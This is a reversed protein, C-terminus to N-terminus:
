EAKKGDKPLPPTNEGIKGLHEALSRAVGEQWRSLEGEEIMEELAQRVDEATVEPDSM